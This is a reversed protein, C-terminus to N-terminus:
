LGAVWTSEGGVVTRLVKIDHIAGYDEPEVEFIDRDLVIFDAFKGASITGKLDEESSCYAANRTYLSVADYVSIAEDPALAEQRSDNGLGKRTVACEIGALPRAPDVPADSGGTVMIGADLFTKIRLYYKARDGLRNKMFGIHYNIFNPQVDLIIPLRRMREIHGPTTVSAHIIRLRRLGAAKLRKAPDPEDSAPYVAEAATIALEMAADGIAHVSCEIGADYAERFLAILEDTSYFVEGKVGSDDSYPERMAASRGGLAGDTYIKKAGVKVMDTGFGTLPNLLEPLYVSNIRIRVPLEGANELSNYQDFFELPAANALGSICHLTTLGHEPYEGLGAQLLKVRYDPDSYLKTFVPAIYKTYGAERFEGNPEGDDMRTISSDDKAAEKTVGVIELAKSNAMTFHLCKSYVLIPRDTSVRDLEYRNPHRQEALEAMVVGGGFLWGDGGDDAAKLMEVIDAISSAGTLMINRKGSCDMFTHIHTDTFGPLVVRGGLNEREMAPYELAAEDTGAYIIKGGRVVIASVTEGPANMTYIKGNYFIKDARLM